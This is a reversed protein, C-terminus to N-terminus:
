HLLEEMHLARLLPHFGRCVDRARPHERRWRVRPLGEGTLKVRGPIAWVQQTLRVIGYDHLRSAAKSLWQRTWLLVHHALPM